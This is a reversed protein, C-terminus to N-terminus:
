VQKDEPPKQRAFLSKWKTVVLVLAGIFAALATLLATSSTLTNLTWQWPTVKVHIVARMQKLQVVQPPQGETSVEVSVELTLTKDGKSQPIVDWTWEVPAATTVTRRESGRVKIDMDDGRLTAIVTQGFKATKTVTNAGHEQKFEEIAKQASDTELVLSIPTSVELMMTEPKNFAYTGEHLGNIIGGIDICDNEKTGVVGLSKLKELCDSQPAAASGGAPPKMDTPTGMTPPPRSSSRPPGATPAGITEGRNIDARKMDLNMSPSLYLAAFGLIILCAFFITYKKM